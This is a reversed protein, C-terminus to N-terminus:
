WYQKLDFQRHEYLRLFFSEDTLLKVLRDWQEAGAYQWPLEESQRAGESFKSFYEALRRHDIKITEPGSL